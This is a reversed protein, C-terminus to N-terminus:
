YPCMASVMQVDLDIEQAWGTNAAPQSTTSGRQDYKTLICGVGSGDDCLPLGMTTRYTLLHSAVNPSDYADVVAVVPGTGATGGGSFGYADQLQSATYSVPVQGGPKGAKTVV